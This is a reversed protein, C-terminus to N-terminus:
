DERDPALAEIELDGAGRLLAHLEHVDRGWADARRCLKRDIPAIDATLARARCLSRFELVHRRKPRVEGLCADLLRVRRLDVPETRDPLCVALRGRSSFALSAPSFRPRGAVALIFPADGPNEALRGILAGLRDEHMWRQEVFPSAWAVNAITFPALGARALVVSGPAPCRAAPCERAPEKARSVDRLRRLTKREASTAGGTGGAIMEDVIRYRALDALTRRREASPARRAQALTKSAYEAMEIACRYGRNFVDSVTQRPDQHPGPVLHRAAHEFFFRVPDFNM